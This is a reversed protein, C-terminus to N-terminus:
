KGRKRRVLQMIEVADEKLGHKELLDLIIARTTPDETRELKEVISRLNNKQAAELIEQEMISMEARSAMQDEAAKLESFYIRDNPNSERYLFPEQGSVWEQRLDDWNGEYMKYKTKAGGKLMEQLFDMAKNQRETMKSHRGLLAEALTPFEKDTRPDFYTEVTGRIIHSPVSAEALRLSMQLPEPLLYDSERGYPVVSEGAQAHFPADAEVPGEMHVSTYGEINRAKWEEAQERALEAMKERKMLEKYAVNADLYPNVGAMELARKRLDKAEETATPPPATAGGLGLRKAFTGPAVPQKEPPEEGVFQRHLWKGWFHRPEKILLNHLGKDIEGMSKAAWEGAGGRGMGGYPSVDAESMIDGADSSRIFDSRKQALTVDPDAVPTTPAAGEGRSM